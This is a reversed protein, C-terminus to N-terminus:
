APTDKFVDCLITDLHNEFIELSPSEVVIFFKRMNLHFKRHRLKQRNSRTVSNPVVLSLRAGDEQCEGKLQKLKALNGRLQKIDICERTQNTHLLVKATHQLDLLAKYQVMSLYKHIGNHQSNIGKKEYALM